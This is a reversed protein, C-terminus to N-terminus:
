PDNSLMRTKTEKMMNGIKSFCFHKTITGIGQKKKKM